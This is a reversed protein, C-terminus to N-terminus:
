QLLLDRAPEAGVKLLHARLPKNNAVVRNAAKRKKQTHRYTHPDVHPDVHAFVRSVACACARARAIHRTGADSLTCLATFRHRLVRCVAEPWTSHVARVQHRTPMRVLARTCVNAYMCTCVHVHARARRRSRLLVPWVSLAPLHHLIEELLKTNHIVASWDQMSGPAVEADAIEVRRATGNRTKGNSANGKSARGKSSKM